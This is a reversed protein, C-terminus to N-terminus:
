AKRIWRWESKEHVHLGWCWRMRVRGALRLHSEVCCCCSYPKKGRLPVGPMSLVLGSTASFRWGSQRIANGKGGSGKRREGHHTLSHPLSAPVHHSRCLLLHVTSALPETNLHINARTHLYSHPFMGWQLYKTSVRMYYSITFDYPLFLIFYICTSCTYGLILHLM